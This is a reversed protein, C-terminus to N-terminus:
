EAAVAGAVAAGQYPAAFDNPAAAIRAVADIIAEAKADSLLASLNLRTFGPKASDDGSLIARRMTASRDEDIELLTHGYPGACACGSRTQVGFHDSLMRTFLQAPLPVDGDALSLAFIPLRDDAEQGHLTLNPLDRWRELARARLAAHREAMHATGIEEKVLVALAARIDGLIAPTGAEEREVVDAVYDHGWHSVFRVTGGGPLSPRSAAVARRNLVLVGSAGPGGAFKHPSFVLADIMHDTGASMDIDLYPGGCAYDWVALAGHSKLLRTVAVVDTLQGTLNAAASFAGVVPRTGAGDLAAALADMDPGGTAAEPLIRVEAGCERWPLINSHHEYPGLLVLPTEEAGALGFLHPLRNIGATAGGGGFIVAHDPGAKVHRAIVGRAAERLRTTHAGCHSATTHTNGYFPLVHDLMFAEVQRLARGSATYDAYILPRPGFPGEFAVGDGILGAAIGAPGGLSTRFDDFQEAPSQM